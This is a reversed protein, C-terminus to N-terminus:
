VEEAEELKQLVLETAVDEPTAERIEKSEIRSHAGYQQEYFHILKGDRIHYGEKWGMVNRVQRLVVKRVEEMSLHVETYITGQVKVHSLKM